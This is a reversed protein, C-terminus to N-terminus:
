SVALHKAYNVRLSWLSIRGGESRESDPHCAFPEAYCKACKEAAQWLREGPRRQATGM